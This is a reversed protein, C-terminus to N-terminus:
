ARAREARSRRLLAATSLLATAATLGLGLSLGRPWYRLEVVHRGAPVPVGLFGVNAREVKVDKDDVRARWGPDFSVLAVLFGAASLEAEVRLFDPRFDALRSQARFGSAPSATRGEALVVERGPDFDPDVLLRLAPLGDAIRRGSVAYTLPLPDAVRSLHVPGAFASQATAVLELGELGELHLAVAYSVGAMRLMRLAGPTEEQTQFFLGLNRQGRPQLGLWDRDYSGLLGFRAATPPSLFDHRARAAALAPEARPAGDRPVRPKLRRYTKGLITTQYDWAHIRTPGQLPVDALIPPPTSFTLAPATPNLTRHACLLDLTLLVVVGWTSAASGARAVLGTALAGLAASAALPGTAARLSEQSGGVHAPEATSLLWTPASLPLWFALAAAVLVAVAACGVLVARRRPRSAVERLHTLGVAVLLSWAFPMVLAAKVPYRLSALPPALTVLAPYVVGYRGLALLGAGAFLVTLVITWRVRALFAAAVVPLTILGLYVSGLFPERGEFLLDRTEAPLPFRSPFFPIGIQLLLSPHLSWFTRVSEPLAARASSRWLDLLPLLLGAALGLGIAISLAGWGLLPLLSKRRDAGDRSWLRGVIWAATVGATLVCMDLSGALVQLGLVGGGLVARRLGPAELGRDAAWVVAPMLCAGAFHHWLNVSSLLPGSLMFALAGGAAGAPSAGMRLALAHVALGGVLLHLFVIVSYARGPELLLSLWTPPYLVQASPNALMPQGLGLWPDWVPWSGAALTRAFAAYQGYLMQHLDREFLVHGGGALTPFLALLAALLLLAVRWTERTRARM